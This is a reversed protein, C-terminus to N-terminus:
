LWLSASKHEKAEISLSPTVTGTIEGDPSFSPM